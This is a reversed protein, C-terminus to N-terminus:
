QVFYAILLITVEERAITMNDSVDGFVTPQIFYGKEAAPNGGCLLKAGEQKGAKIYGLVKKFQEEDM